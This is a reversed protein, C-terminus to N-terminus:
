AGQSNTNFYVVLSLDLQPHFFCIKVSKFWVIRPCSYMETFKCSFEDIFVWFVLFRLNYLFQFIQGPILKIQLDLM